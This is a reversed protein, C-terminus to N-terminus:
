GRLLTLGADVYIETGTVYASEDSALFIVVDAVESAEAPRGHLPPFHAPMKVDWRV